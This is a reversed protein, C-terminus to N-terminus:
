LSHLSLHIWSCNSGCAGRRVRLPANPWRSPDLPVGLTPHEDEQLQQDSISPFVPCPLWTTSQVILYLRQRVPPPCQKLQIEQSVIVAFAPSPSVETSSTPCPLPVNHSSIQPFIFSLVSRITTVPDCRLNANLYIMIDAQVEDIPVEELLYSHRDEFSGVRSVLDPDSRSMIFFKLGPLRQKNFVDFLDCLFESSGQGDIEDLADIVV